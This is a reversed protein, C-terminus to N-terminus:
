FIKPVTICIWVVDLFMLGDSILNRRMLNGFDEKSFLNDGDTFVMFGM